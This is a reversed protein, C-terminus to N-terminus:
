SSRLRELLHRAAGSVIAARAKQVGERLSGVREAALLAAAANALVIREHPGSRGELVNLIITASEQPGDAKLDDLRCSELGFDAPMWELSSVRSEQVHRVLTPASLSVEDLGDASCVLFAQQVGLLSAAGALTDLLDRDGVGLLQYEASAPNLLPGLLNFVTRIGLKRRVAAVSALAPHFHPAFCFAFGWRDMCRQSWDPGKEVPVGLHVLVDASGSRSSVARNGHKVVACGTAAVVLATATSVNFTGHSDGGTGCTDIVPRAAVHLSIMQKRLVAAASSIEGATEGKMRLAVLFGAALLDDTSGETLATIAQAMLSQPLEDRKLLLSIAQAFWPSETLGM